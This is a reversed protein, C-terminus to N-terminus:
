KMNQLLYKVGAFAEEGSPVIQDAPLVFGFKGTDRLEAAFSYDGKVVDAVFDISSGSAQYITQCIPGSNFRVQHVAFIADVTGRALSQIEADNPAKADCSYGYAISLLVLILRM